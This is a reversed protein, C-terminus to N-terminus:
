YEENIKKITKFLEFDVTKGQNAELFDNITKMLTTDKGQINGLEYNIKADQFDLTNLGYLKDMNEPIKARPLQTLRKRVYFGCSSPSWNNYNVSQNLLNRVEDSELEKFFEQKSRTIAAISLTEETLQLYNEQIM